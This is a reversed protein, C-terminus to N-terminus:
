STEEEHDCEKEIIFLIHNNNDTCAAKYLTAVCQDKANLFRLCKNRLSCTNEDNKCYYINDYM